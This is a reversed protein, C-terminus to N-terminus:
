ATESPQLIIMVYRGGKITKFEIINDGVVTPSVTGGDQQRIIYNKIGQYKIKCVNGSNSIIEMSRLTKDSWVASLEFDGRAKIGKFQGDSWKDPLAPFLEIYGGQSQLLMETMGATAGFNGDIQFPPHTDFLNTLTSEKLQEELLKHSHNGDHLRAWFNIKWAKSWGTGGDGRTNLTTKMAEAYMDDQPSRGTVIQSGPHLWFLHNAHRHHDDGTIDLQLEDKWEM